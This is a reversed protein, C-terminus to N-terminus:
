ILSRHSIDKVLKCTQSDLTTQQSRGFAARINFTSNNGANLSLGLEVMIKDCLLQPQVDVSIGLFPSLIRFTVFFDPFEVISPRSLSSLSHGSWPLCGIEQRATVKM